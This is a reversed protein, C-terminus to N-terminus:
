IDGNHDSIHKNLMRKTRYDNIRNKLFHTFYAAAVPLMLIAIIALFALEGDSASGAGAYCKVSAIIVLFLFFKKM